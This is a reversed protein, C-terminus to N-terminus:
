KRALTRIYNVLDWRQAESLLKAFAPMASGPYGNTIWDFLQGDPHVGPATHITLDAPPPHLALGAPGDGKGTPGHCPLCNNEYLAKGNSISANTAPFPNNVTVLYPNPQVQLQFTHRIDNLGEQRVIVEIQWKGAISLFSGRVTYRSSNIPKAEVQTIGLKYEIPNLRLLVKPNAGEPSAPLGYLDVAIENDGVRAPAAWLDMRTGSERYEGIYGMRQRAKLADQSPSVGTMLGAAILVFFGLAVELRIDHRLWAIAKQGNGRLRPSLVLLNVAGIGVLLAFLLSKVGLAQGYLTSLLAQWTGVHIYASYLGSLALMSVSILAVRSFRPVLWQAPLKTTRLLIFLPILGGLWAAMATIHLWDMGVPIPESLAAAHSQLSFTLLIALALITGSLWSRSSGAGPLSLKRNLIVFLGLLITRTWLVWGTRLKVLQLLASGFSVQFDGQTVQWAQFFVFIWSVVLLGLGGYLSLRRLWRGAILDSESEPAEWVRYASRWVFFGFFISGTALAVTLYGLWRLLTDPLPPRTSTPDPTGPAPLLSAPSTGTGVSFSIIGNTIHGDVASRAQWIVSYAGPSLAPLDFQLIHNNAANIHSTNDVIIQLNADALKAKSFGADLPESFELTVMKPVQALVAGAEPDSRVLNAHAQVAIGPQLVLVLLVLWAWVRTLSLHFPNDKPM